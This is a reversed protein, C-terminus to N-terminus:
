NGKYAGIQIAKDGCLEFEETTYGADKLTMAAFWATFFGRLSAKGRVPDMNAARVVADDTYLELAASVDQNAVAAAHRALRAEAEARVKAVDDAEVSATILSTAAVIISAIHKGHM